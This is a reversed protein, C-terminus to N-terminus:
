EDTHPATAGPGPAAAATKERMRALLEARRRRQKAGALDDKGAVSGGPAGGTPRRGEWTRSPGRM